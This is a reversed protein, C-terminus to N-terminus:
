PEKVGGEHTGSVLDVVFNATTQNSVDWFVGVISTSTIETIELGDWALRSTKWKLGTPGYAWLRTFDAFVIIGHAGVPRVDVVPKVGVSGWAEPKNAPVFYGEGRAVVCLYEPDPTTFLGSFGKPSVRGFAFTGLWAQGHDPRVRLLIGDGGGQTTAGPFYYHRLSSESIETLQDCEYSHPFSLDMNRSATDQKQRDRINDISL